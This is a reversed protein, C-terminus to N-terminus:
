WSVRVRVRIKGLLMVTHRVSGASNLAEIQYVDNSDAIQLNEIQMHSEINSGDVEIEQISRRPDDGVHCDNRLWTIVPRPKGFAKVVWVVTCDELTETDDPTVSFLPPILM